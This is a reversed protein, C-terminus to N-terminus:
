DPGETVFKAWGQGLIYATCSNNSCVCDWRELTAM